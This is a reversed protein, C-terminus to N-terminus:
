VPLKFVSTGIFQRASQTAFTANQAQRPQPGDFDVGIELAKVILCEIHTDTLIRIL